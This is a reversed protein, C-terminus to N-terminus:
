GDRGTPEQARQLRILPDRIKGRGFVLHWRRGGLQQWLWAFRVGSLLVARIQSAVAEKALHDPSGTVQIRMPLTSLTAKYAAALANSDSSDKIAELRQQLREAINPFRSLSRTVDIITIAYRLVPILPKPPRRLVRIAADIGDAYASLDHGFVESVSEADTRLTSAFLPEIDSDQVSEGNALSHTRRAALVIGAFALARETDADLLRQPPTPLESPM